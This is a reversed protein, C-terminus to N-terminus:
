IVPSIKFPESKMQLHAAMADVVARSHPWEESNQKRRSDQSAEFDNLATKGVHQIKNESKRTDKWLSAAKTAVASVLVIKVISFIACNLFHM